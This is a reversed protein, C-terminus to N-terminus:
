DNLLESSSSTSGSDDSDYDSDVALFDGLSDEDTVDKLTTFKRLLDAVTAAKIKELEEVFNVFILQEDEKESIDYESSLDVVTVKRPGPFSRLGPPPPPVGMPPMGGMHPPPRMPPPPNRMAAMRQAQMQRMRLTMAHGAPNPAHPNVSFPPPGYLGRLPTKPWMKMSIAAGPKITTSWLHPLIIEGNSSVKITDTVNEDESYSLILAKCCRLCGIIVGHLLLWPRLDFHGEVVHPGIVEVHNFAEIITAKMADWKRCTEFPLTYNRGVADKFSIPQLEKRLSLFVLIFPDDGEKSYEQFAVCVRERSQHRNAEDVIEDIALRTVQEADVYRNWTSKEKQGDKIIKNLGYHLRKHGFPVKTPKGFSSNHRIYAELNTSPWDTKFKDDTGFIRQKWDFFYAPLDSGINKLTFTRTTKSKDGHAESETVKVEGLSKTEGQNSDTANKDADVVDVVDVEAPKKGSVSATDDVATSATVASSASTAVSTVSETDSSDAKRELEWKRQAKEQKRSKKKTFKVQRQRLLQISSRYMLENEFDGTNREVSGIAEDNGILDQLQRLTGSTAEIDFHMDKFDKQSSPNLEILMQLLSALKQGLAVTAQISSGVRMDAM